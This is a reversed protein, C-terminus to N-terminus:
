IIGSAVKCNSLNSEGRWNIVQPCGYVVDVWKESKIVGEKGRQRSKVLYIGVNKVGEGGEGKSSVDNISPGWALIWVDLDNHLRM